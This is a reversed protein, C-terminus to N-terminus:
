IRVDPSFDKLQHMFQLGCEHFNDVYASLNMGILWSFVGFYDHKCGRFINGVYFIKLEFFFEVQRNKLGVVIM